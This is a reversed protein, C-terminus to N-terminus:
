QAFVAGVRAHIANAIQPGTQRISATVGVHSDADGVFFQGGGDLNPYRQSGVPVVGDGSDHGVSLRKYILDYGKMRAASSGCIAAVAGAGPIFFSFIGGVVACKIYRHYTRDVRAVVHRGDCETYMACHFDGYLRWETWKDWSQDIVAARPFPESGANLFTHFSNHVTMEDLVPSSAHLIVPALIGLLGDVATSSGLVQSVTCVLHSIINCAFNNGLFPLALAAALAERGVSALPVGDQPSSVTIVGAVQSAGLNQATLRSVIGGNSHGIFVYPGPYSAVDTGFRSQLDSSQSEYFAKSDLTHRIENHILFRTRLYTDMKCWTTADSWFGHQFLVNLSGSASVQGVIDQGCGLDTGLPTPGTPFSGGGNCEDGCMVLMPQPGGGGGKAVPMWETTPRAAARASDMQVNRAVTMHSLTMVHEEHLKRKGNDEDLETRVEALLWLDRNRKFLRIHKVGQIPATGKSITLAAGSSSVDTLQLQRQKTVEVRLQRGDISVIKPGTREADGAARALTHREDVRTTKATVVAGGVMVNGQVSTTDTLDVIVGATVDGNQTSGVIDMPTEATADSPQQDAMQQSASNSETLNDANLGAQTVQISPSTNPDVPDTYSTNVITAHSTSYGAAVHVHEDPASETLSTTMAGTVPDYIGGSLTVTTSTHIAVDGTVYTDNPNIGGGPGPPPDNCDPHADDCVILASPRLGASNLPGVDKCGAIVGTLALVATFVLRAKVPFKFDTAIDLPGRPGTQTNNNLKPM